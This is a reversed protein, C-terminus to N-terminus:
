KAFAELVTEMRASRSGKVLVLDGPRALNRLLAAAEEPSSIQFVEGAGRSRASEAIWHAESGVTLLCDIKEEAATKGVARHGNESEKGLEGMRGLVAIRKGETPLQALTRLAANVSDPNANYSDDLIRVGRIEKKQLRGGTLEVRRLGATCEEATLGLATGAAVALLANQVMHLGPIALHAPTSKGHIILDFHTGDQEQRLNAARIDGRHIGALIVKARTRQAIGDTFDDDGNLVVTGDESVAEALM